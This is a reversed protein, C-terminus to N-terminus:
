GDSNTDVTASFTVRACTYENPGVPWSVPTGDPETVTLTFISFPTFVGATNNSNWTGTGDTFSVSQTYTVGSQNDYITVDYDGDEIPLAITVPGCNTITVDMCTPCPTTEATGYQIPIQYGIGDTDGITVLALNGSDQDAPDNNVTFSLTYVNGVNTVSYTGGGYTALYFTGIAQMTAQPTAYGSNDTDIQVFTNFFYIYTTPFTFGTFDVILQYSPM